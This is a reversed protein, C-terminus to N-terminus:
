SIWSSFKNRETKIPHPRYAHRIVFISEDLAASTRGDMFRFALRTAVSGGQAEPKTMKGYNTM